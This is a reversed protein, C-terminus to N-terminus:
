FPKETCQRLFIGSEKNSAEGIVATQQRPKEASREVTEDSPCCESGWAELIVEGTQLDIVPEALGCLLLDLERVPNTCSKRKRFTTAAKGYEASKVTM